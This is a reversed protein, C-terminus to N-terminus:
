VEENLVKCITEYASQILCKENDDFDGCRGCDLCYRDIDVLADRLKEQYKEM